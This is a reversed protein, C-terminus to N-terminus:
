KRVFSGLKMFRHSGIMEEPRADGKGWDPSAKDPNYYHDWNGTPTFQGQVIETAINKAIQWERGDKQKTKFNDWDSKTMKNWCSFQKPAKVADVMANLQGRGRNYIVSAVARMGEDGDNRAEAWLTRAIINHKEETSYQQDRVETKPKNTTADSVQPQGFALTAGLAAKGLASGLGENYTSESQHEHLISNILNDFKM